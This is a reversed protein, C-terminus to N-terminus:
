IPAVLKFSLLIYFNARLQRNQKTKASPYVPICKTPDPFSKSVTLLLDFNM